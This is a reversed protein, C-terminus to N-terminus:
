DIVAGCPFNATVIPDPTSSLTDCAAGILRIGMAGTAEWDTGFTLVNGNLTVTGAGAQGVDISGDLTLDCSVVGGIIEDFAAALQAPSTAVYYPADGNVPDLGAGANAVQQLHGEAVASGVSLVFVRIDNAFANGAAAVSLDRALANPDACSDPEGDTALVIIAPSGPAPPNAILDAVAADISEGTPTDQAPNNDNFLTDIDAFNGIARDATSVLVPCEAPVAGGGYSTYLSAGFVVADQLQTVVGDVDDVLATKVADWRSVGAILDENMSGSQDILLQVTPITRATTFEVSPCDADPTLSADAGPGDADSDGNDTCGGDACEDQGSASAGCATLSLGTVALFAIRM